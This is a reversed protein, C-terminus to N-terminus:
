PEGSIDSQAVSAAGPLEARARRMRRRRQMAEQFNNVLNPVLVSFILLIGIVGTQFHGSFNALSMGNRINLIILISLFVGYLSGSGGFISVGGLLVMTIIDLEYGNALDGRVAGLRAALLLGALASVLGSAIFLTLKVRAVKVGSYRAVDKNNGIVFTRRGFGSYQLIIVAFVLLGFFVLLALPFPGVLSKQGLLNFWEPFKGISRDELFVRALGRYSILMALTVVLSNLGVVAIWFGNFLGTALGIAMSVLLATGFDMGENFLYAAACATLGMISPASLDIEGNIILFTMTLAVIIKEISLVFLNIQNGISLYNPAVLSNILFVVVLIVVLFGEWSKMREWISQLVNTKAPM